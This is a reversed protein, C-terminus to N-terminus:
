FLDMRILNGGTYHSFTSSKELIEGSKLRCAIFMDEGILPIKDCYESNRDPHVDHEGVFITTDISIRTGCGPLRNTKHILAYDSINVYGKKPIIQDDTYHKIVWQMEKYTNATNLFDESFDSENKLKYFHLYNKQTDGILPVHCNMGWPGEVWADSHAIATDLPRGMNEEVEFGFKIRINPTVRFKKLTLPSNNTLNRMINCWARLFMNYELQYERKPVVGGNPTMNQRNSFNKNLREIFQNEDEVYQFNFAKAVYLQMSNTLAKFLNEEIKYEVFLDNVKTGAWETTIRSIRKKRYDLSM